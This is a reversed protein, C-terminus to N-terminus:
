ANTRKALWEINEFMAPDNTERRIGKAFKEMWSWAYAVAYMDTILAENLVGQRVFTGMTEYLDCFASIQMYDASDRPHKKRIQALTPPKDFMTLLEYGRFAGNMAGLMQLQVLLQADAVTPPTQVIRIEEVASGTQAPITSTM